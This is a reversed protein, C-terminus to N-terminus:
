HINDLFSNMVLISIEILENYSIKLVFRKFDRKGMVTLSDNQFKAYLVVALKILRVAESTVM